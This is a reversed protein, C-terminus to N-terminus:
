PNQSPGIPPFNNTRRTERPRIKVLLGDISSGMMFDALGAVCRSYVAKERKM